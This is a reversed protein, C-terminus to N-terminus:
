AMDLAEKYLNLIAEAEQRKHDDQKRLKVISKIAKTDFGENKIENYLEKIDDSINKKEEELREVREIYSRLKGVAIGHSETTIDNM